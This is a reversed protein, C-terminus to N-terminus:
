PPTAEIVSLRGCGRGFSRTFARCTARLSRWARNEMAWCMRVPQEPTAQDQLGRKKKAKGKRAIDLTSALQRARRENAELGHEGSSCAM